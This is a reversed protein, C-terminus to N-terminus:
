AKKIVEQVEKWTPEKINLMITPLEAMGIEPNEDLPLCSNPDSHTEKLFAEVVEKPSNLSGSKPEGLLYEWHLQIYGKYVPSEAEGGSRPTLCRQGGLGRTRTSLSHYPMQPFAGKPHLHSLHRSIRLKPPAEQSSSEQTEGSELDTHQVQTEERGCKAQHIKLGRLNKCIKGCSCRVEPAKGTITSQTLRRQTRIEIRAM